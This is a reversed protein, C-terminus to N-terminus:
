RTALRARGAAERGTPTNYQAVGKGQRAGAGRRLGDDSPSRNNGRAM